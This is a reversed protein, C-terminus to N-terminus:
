LYVLSFLYGHRERVPLTYVLPPPPNIHKVLNMENEIEYGHMYIYHMDM